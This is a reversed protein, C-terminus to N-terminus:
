RKYQPNTPDLAYLHSTFMDEFRPDKSLDIEPLKDTVSDKGRKGNKSKRKINYGKAVNTADQDAAVLLELEERTAEREFHKEPFKGDGKGRAKLKQKKIPKAEEDSKEDDFFDDKEDASDEDSYDDDDKSLRKRAKRKEKMKEQHMEWVTKKETSKRELVRKSLDELETDFTIEMDQVDTQEEDSKDVPQLRALREKNTIKRKIVGNPLSEDGSDHVDTDSASDSGALYIGIGDLQL